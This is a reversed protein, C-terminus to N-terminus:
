IGAVRDLKHVYVVGRGVKALLGAAYVADFVADTIAEDVIFTIIDKEPDILESLVSGLKQRGGTGQGRYYTAGEAGANIAASIIEKDRGRQVVCTILNLEAM